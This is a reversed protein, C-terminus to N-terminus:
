VKFDRKLIRMIDKKMSRKGLRYIFINFSSNLCGITTSWYVLVDLIVSDTEYFERTIFAILAPYWFGSFVMVIIVIVLLFNNKVKPVGPSTKVLQAKLIIRRIKLYVVIMVVNSLVLTFTIVIFWLQDNRYILSIGGFLIRLTWQLLILFKTRESTLILNYKLPYQFYLYREITVFLVGFGSAACLSWTVTHSLSDLLSGAVSSKLIMIVLFPQGLVGVFFTIQM